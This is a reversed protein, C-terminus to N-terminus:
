KSELAKEWYITDGELCDSLDSLETDVWMFGGFEKSAITFSFTNDSLWTQSKTVGYATTWWAGRDM